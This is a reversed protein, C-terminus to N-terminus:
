ELNPMYTIDEILEKESFFESKKILNITDERIVMESLVPLEKMKDDINFDAM